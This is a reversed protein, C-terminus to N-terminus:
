RVMRVSNINGHGDYERVKNYPDTIWVGDVIFKYHYKGGTLRLSYTWGKETKTMQCDTESWDNFDGALIVHKAKHFGYLNFQVDTQVERLSNYGGFENETKHPNAPDEMWVGDVIFKYQHVDPPLQLTIEWGKEAKKMRFVNENWKNFSGALVVKKADEFGDLRFKANGKETVYAHFFKLNFTNIYKGHADIAPSINLMEPSPEAWFNNNIVFKFEWDFHDNFDVIKKRLEYINETIKKMKWADRSWLNFQGSVVVNKIDLDDFDRRQQNQEDTITEYDRKDFTFVVEDGEIRYGKIEEKQAFIQLSGILLFLTIYYKLKM